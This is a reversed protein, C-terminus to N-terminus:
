NKALNLGIVIKLGILGCVFEPLWKFFRQFGLIEMFQLNTSKSMNEVHYYTKDNLIICVSVLNENEAAEEAIFDIKNNSM